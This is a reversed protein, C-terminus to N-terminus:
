RRNNRRTRKSKRHKRRTKRSGGYYRRIANTLYGNNSNNKNSNGNLNPIVRPVILHGNVSTIRPKKCVVNIEELIYQRILPLPPARPDTMSPHDFGLAGRLYCYYDETTAHGEYMEDIEPRLMRFYNFFQQYEAQVDPRRKFAAKEAESMQSGPKM